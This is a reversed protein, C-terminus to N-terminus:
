EEKPCGYPNNPQIRTQNPSPSVMIATGTKFECPRGVQTSQLMTGNSTQYVLQVGEVLTTDPVASGAVAGVAGGAVAGMVQNDTRRPGRSNHGGILAGAVAGIVAGTLQATQRGSRNDVAVRATGISLIEVTTVEQAQNVEYASYVDSRYQSGDAVCGALGFTLAAAALSLTWTKQM